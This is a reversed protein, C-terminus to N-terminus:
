NYVHSGNEKEGKEIEEDKVRPLANIQEFRREITGNGGLRKYANYLSAIMDFEDYGVQGRFFIRELEPYLLYHSISLLAEQEATQKKKRASIIYKLFEWFGLSGSITIVLTIITEFTM